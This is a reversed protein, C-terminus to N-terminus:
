AAASRQAGVRAPLAGACRGGLRRLSWRRRRPRPEPRWEDPVCSRIGLRASRADIFWILERLSEEREAETLEPRELARIAPHALLDEIPVDWTAVLADMFPRTRPDREFAAFDACYGARDDQQLGIWPRTRVWCGRGEDWREAPGWGQLRMWAGLRGLRGLGDLFDRDHGCISAQWNDGFRERAKRAGERARERALHDGLAMVLFSSLFAAALGVVFSLKLTAETAGDAGLRAVYGFLSLWIAVAILM